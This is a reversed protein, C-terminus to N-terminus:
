KNEENEERLCIDVLLEFVMRNIIDGSQLLDHYDSVVDGISKKMNRDAIGIYWDMIPLRNGYEDENCGYWTHGQIDVVKFNFNTTRWARNIYEELDMYVLGTDIPYYIPLIETISQMVDSGLYYEYGGKYTHFVFMDYGEDYTLEGIKFANSDEGRGVVNCQVPFNDIEGNRIKTLTSHDIKVLSKINPIDYELYPNSNYYISGVRIQRAIGDYDGNEIFRYAIACDYEASYEKLWFQNRNYVVTMNHSVLVADVEGAVLRRADEASFYFFRRNSM